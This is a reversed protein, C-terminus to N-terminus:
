SIWPMMMVSPFVNFQTDFYHISRSVSKSKIKWRKGPQIFTLLDLKKYM